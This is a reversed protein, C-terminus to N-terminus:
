VTKPKYVFMVKSYEELHECVETGLDTLCYIRNKKEEENICIVLGRKKMQRLTHSTLESSIGTIEWIKKPNMYKGYLAEMINRRNDISLVYAILAVTKDSVM